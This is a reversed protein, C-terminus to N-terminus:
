DGEGWEIELAEYRALMEVLRASFDDFDLAEKPSWAIEALATLRPFIQFELEAETSHWPTWMCAEIGIVHADEVATLGDTPRMAYADAVSVLEYNRNLYAPEHPSYVVDHGEGLARSVLDADGRWFQIITSEALEEDFAENWGMPRRGQSEVYAAVRGVAWGYLESAQSMGLEAMRTACTESEEWSAIGVEDGGIHIIESPFLAMVEDLVSEIFSFTEEECVCLVGNNRDFYPSVEFPGETCGLSPYSALAAMSHGPFDIEPIITVHREEAYDIIAGIEDQTYFGSHPTWDIEDTEFWWDGMQSGSRHSGVETLQPWRLIEIRWGQDDTPHWHLTNLKHLVMWDIVRRAFEGGFFYRAEDFLFGRHSFRPADEVHIGVLRYRDDPAVSRFTAAPLMQRLTQLGWFVGAPEGGVIEIGSPSVDLTYGEVPLQYDLRLVIAKDTESTETMVTVPPGEGGPPAMENAWWQAEALLTAPVFVPTTATLVFSGSGREMRVPVPLLSPLELSAADFTDIGTDSPQDPLSEGADYSADVLDDAVDSHGLDVSTDTASSSADTDHDHDSCAATSLVVTCAVVVSIFRVTKRVRFKVPARRRSAGRCPRSWSDSAASRTVSGRGGRRSM